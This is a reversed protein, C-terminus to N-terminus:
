TVLIVQAKRAVEEEMELLREHMARLREDATSRSGLSLSWHEHCGNM